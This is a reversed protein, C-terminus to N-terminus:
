DGLLDNTLKGNWTSQHLTGWDVVVQFVRLPTIWLSVDRDALWLAMETDLHRARISIKNVHIAGGDDTVCQSVSTNQASTVSHGLDRREGLQTRGSWSSRM